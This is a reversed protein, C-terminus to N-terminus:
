FPSNVAMPFFIVTHTLSFIEQVHTHLTNATIKKKNKRKPLMPRKIHFCIQLCGYFFFRTYQFYVTHLDLFFISYAFKLFYKLRKIHCIDSHQNALIETYKKESLRMSHGNESYKWLWIKWRYTLPNFIGFKLFNPFKHRM